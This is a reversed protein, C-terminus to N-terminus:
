IRWLAGRQAAGHPGAEQTYGALRSCLDLQWGEGAPGPSVNVIAFLRVIGHEGVIWKLNETYRDGWRYRMDTWRPTIDGIVHSPLIGAAGPIAPDNGDERSVESLVLAFTISLDAGAGNPHAIPFPCPNTTGGIGPSSVENALNGGLITLDGVPVGGAVANVRGLIAIREVIDVAWRQVPVRVLEFARANGEDDAQNTVTALLQRVNDYYRIREPHAAPFNIRYAQTLAHLQEPQPFVDPSYDLTTWEAGNYVVGAQVQSHTDCEFAETQALMDHSFAVDSATAVKPPTSVRPGGVYRQVLPLPRVNSPM